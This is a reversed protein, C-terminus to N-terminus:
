PSDVKQCEWSDPDTSNGGLYTNRLPWRCHRRQFAVGLAASDNVFKTGTMTDPAVDQEVWDVLAALVNSERDFAGQASAGGLQGVVWAGPGGNCHFMGSIRFLRIFEDMQESTYNMGSALHAYFRPSNFSTIQNDQGGHFMVIKGGRDQFASLSSPWTRITGPNVNQAYEADTLNYSAPDWNPNNYVAYRFWGESLPWPQGDYLGDASMIEGGPNMRPYLLTGNEWFYTEFVKKVIEVQSSSLCTSNNSSAGCLLPAPDFHCLMSDEIIGDAVGDITDCQRLVENHILTKWVAPTIFDPSGAPGTIPYFRARWSYLNDFDVAPSGAVVGDFDEPFMETAKIAQRGGLSCGLFYSKGADDGYFPQLMKRGAEVGIHVARWAFDVVVETNNLFQIGSTGNHGNNTGVSAFGNKVTYAISSYDICGGLGGNGTTVLRGNWSQPLWIEAVVGSKGSTAIQLAVRCLNTPVSQSTAGCSPDNYPLSLNTGAEIYAHETVTANTIGVSAPDFSTCQEQFTAQALTCATGWAFTALVFSAIFAM